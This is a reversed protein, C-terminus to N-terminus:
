AISHKAICIINHSTNTTNIVHMLCNSSYLFLINNVNNTVYRFKNQFVKFKLVFMYLCCCNVHCTIISSASYMSFLLTHSLFALTKRSTCSFAPKFIIHIRSRKYCWQTDFLECSSVVLIVCFVKETNSIQNLTSVPWCWHTIRLTILRKSEYKLNQTENQWQFFIYQGIHCTYVLIIAVFGSWGAEYVIKNRSFLSYCLLCFM